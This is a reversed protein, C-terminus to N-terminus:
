EFLYNRVPLSGIRSGRRDIRICDGAYESFWQRYLDMRRDSLLPKGDADVTQTKLSSHILRYSSTEFPNLRSASDLTKEEFFSGKAHTQGDPYGLDIGLLYIERAGMFRAAEVAAAAVTGGSGLIPIGNRDAFSKESPFRTAYFYCERWLHNINSYYTSLPAILKLNKKDAFFLHMANFFQPDGTVIYDPQVNQRQLLTVATDVALLIFRHREAKIESLHLDLTPGAAAIVITRSRATNRLDNLNRYFGNLFVKGNRRINSEFRKGYKKLTASNTEGIRCHYAVLERIRAATEPFLKEVPAPILLKIKATPHSGLFASFIKEDFPSFVRVSCGNEGFRSSDCGLQEPIRPDPIIVAMNLQPYTEAIKIPLYGFGNEAVIILDTEEPSIQSVTKEAERVPNYTSHLPIGNVSLSPFGSRTPLILPIRNDSDSM